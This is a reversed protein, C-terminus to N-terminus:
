QHIGPHPPTPRAPISGFYRDVKALTTKPDVDGAIVLIANNPHYWTRYFAQLQPANIQKSFSNLTGLGENAYPTGGLVNKLLKIWVRYEAESNDQTVEQEIAGREQNWLPQTDLVNQARSAELHLAIDLDTSPMTFFYQTLADQTDANFNGGTIATVQAFQSASMSQSGRFMMHETAHATGTYKEDNSGALYNMVTTVVPALPDRVVVVRLGNKLTARTVQPSAQAALPLCLLGAALIGAITKM